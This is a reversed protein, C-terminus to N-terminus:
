SVHALHVNENGEELRDMLTRNTEMLSNVVGLLAMNTEILSEMKMEIGDVKTDLGIM